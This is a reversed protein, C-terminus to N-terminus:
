IFIVPKAFEMSHAEEIEASLYGLGNSREGTTHHGVDVHSIVQAGGESNVFVLLIDKRPNDMPFLSYQSPRELTERVEGAYILFMAPVHERKGDPRINGAHFLRHEQLARFSIKEIPGAGEPM